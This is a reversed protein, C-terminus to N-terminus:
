TKFYVTINKCVKRNKRKGPLSIAIAFNRLYKRFASSKTQASINVFIRQSVLKKVCRFNKTNVMRSVKVRLFM